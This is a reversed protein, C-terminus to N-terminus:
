NPDCSEEDEERRPHQEGESQRSSSGREAQKALPRPLTFARNRDTGLAAARSQRSSCGKKWCVVRVCRASNPPESEGGDVECGDRASRAPHIAAGTM